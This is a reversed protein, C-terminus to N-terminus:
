DTFTQPKEKEKKIREDLTKLLEIKGIKKPVSYLIFNNIDINLELAIKEKQKKVENKSLKDVKTLIYIVEIDTLDKIWNNIIKDLENPIRRIDLLFIIVKLQKRKQLYSEILLSWKKKISKSINTFGYGPLDIFYLSNNILFFNISQTKGPTSSTEAIKRNCLNNILSSKGVNSKGIFAIELFHSNPIKEYDTFSRFFSVNKIKFM